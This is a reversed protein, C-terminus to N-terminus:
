SSNLKFDIVVLFVLLSKFPNTLIAFLAVIGVGALIKRLYDLFGSPYRLFLLPLEAHLMCKYYSVYKLAIWLKCFDAPM